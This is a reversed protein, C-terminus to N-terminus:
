PTGTSAQMVPLISTTQEFAPDEILSYLIEFISSPLSPLFM